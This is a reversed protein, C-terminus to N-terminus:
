EQIRGQALADAVQAWNRNIWNPDHKHQLFTERDIGLAADASEGPSVGRVSTAEFLLKTEADAKLAAIQADLDENPDILPLALKLSRVGAARLAEEARIRHEGKARERELEEVATNRAAIVEDLRSKPVMQGLEKAVAEAIEESVGMECLREKTM